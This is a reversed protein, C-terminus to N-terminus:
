FFKYTLFCLPFYQRTQKVQHRHHVITLHNNRISSYIGDKILIYSSVSASYDYFFITYEFILIM